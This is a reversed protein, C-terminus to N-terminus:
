HGPSESAFASIASARGQEILRDMSAGDLDLELMGVKDSNPIVVRRPNRDSALFAAHMTFAVTALRATTWHVVGQKELSTREPEFVLTRETPPAYEGASISFIGGDVVSAGEFSGAEVYPPLSMSLGVAEAMQVDPTAAAHFVLPRMNSIDSAVVTTWIGTAAHAEAFTTTGLLRRLSEQVDGMPRAGAQGQRAWGEAHLSRMARESPLPMGGKGVLCAMLAGSSVGSSTRVRSILGSEHMAQLVGFYALGRVGAGAFAVGVDGRPQPLASRALGIKSGLGTWDGSVAIALACFAVVAVVSVVAWRGGKPM